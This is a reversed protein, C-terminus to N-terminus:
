GPKISSLKKWFKITTFVILFSLITSTVAQWSMGDYFVSIISLAYLAGATLLLLFQPM